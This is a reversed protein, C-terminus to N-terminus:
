PRPCGGDSICTIASLIVANLPLNKRSLCVMKFGYGTDLGGPQQGAVLSFSMKNRYRLPQECPIVPRVLDAADGLRGIRSLADVVQLLHSFGPKAERRIHFNSRRQRGM